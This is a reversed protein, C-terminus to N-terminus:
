CLSYKTQDSTICSIINTSNRLDFQPKFVFNRVTDAAKVENKM